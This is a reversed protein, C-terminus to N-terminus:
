RHQLCHHRNLVILIKSANLRLVYLPPTELPMQEVHAILHVLHRQLLPEDCWFCQAKFVEEDQHEYNFCYKFCRRHGWCMVVGQSQGQTELAVTNAFRM